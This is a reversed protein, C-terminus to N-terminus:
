KAKTRSVDIIDGKKMCAKVAEPLVREMAVEFLGMIADGHEGDKIEVKLSTQIFELLTTVCGEIMAARPVKHLLFAKVVAVDVRHEALVENIASMLNNFEYREIDTLIEGNKEKNLLKMAEEYPIGTHKSM